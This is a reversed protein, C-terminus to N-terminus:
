GSADGPLKPKVPDAEKSLVIKDGLASWVGAALKSGAKRRLNVQYTVREGEGRRILWFQHTLVDLAQDLEPKSMRDKEPMADVAERLDAYPLEVERLMLRMIKRLPPPLEAIEIASIGEDRKEVNLKQQLREFVSM